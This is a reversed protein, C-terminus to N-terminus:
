HCTLGGPHAKLGEALSHSQFTSLSNDLLTHSGCPHPPQPGRTLLGLRVMGTELGGDESDLPLRTTLSPASPEGARHM